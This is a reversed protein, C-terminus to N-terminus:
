NALVIDIYLALLLARGQSNTMRRAQGKPLAVVSNQRIGFVDNMCERPMRDVGFMVLQGLELLERVLIDKGFGSGAASPCLVAAISGRWSRQMPPRVTIVQGDHAPLGVRYVGEM